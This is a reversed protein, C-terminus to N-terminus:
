LSRVIRRRARRARLHGRAPVVPDRRDSPEQAPRLEVLQRLEPVDDPAVHREDTRAGLDRAVHIQAIRGPLADQADPGSM